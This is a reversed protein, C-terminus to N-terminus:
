LLLPKRKSRSKETKEQIKASEKIKTSLEQLSEEKNAEVPAKSKKKPPQSQLNEDERAKRKAMTKELQQSRKTQEKKKKREEEDIFYEGSEMMLDEKRPTQEPAFLSKNKKTKIKIKKQKQNRKKFAPLFREWNETKLSEDKELERKIMLEKIHYVPHVNQMCDEVIRRVIKLGKPSGMVCTTQGQVLIYCNTLLEIAKLTSGNPGVLRQRRKVFRDKKRVLGGIKIIDCFTGDNLIKRAQPFPVSRALLKIMDRVKIIAYPDWMKKTTYVSMSGEVLDLEAKVHHEAAVRKVDPWVQQLYKERYQPFLTSFSSEELVGHPNYEPKFDELKWHDIDESDWPKEKRYRKSKSVNKLEASAAAPSDEEGKMEVAIICCYSLQKKYPNLITSLPMAPYEWNM